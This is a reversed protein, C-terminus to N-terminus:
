LSIQGLLHATTYREVILLLKTYRGVARVCAACGNTGMCPAFLRTSEHMAYLATSEGPLSDSHSRSRTLRTALPCYTSRTVRDQLLLNGPSCVDCTHSLCTQRERNNAQRLRREEECQGKPAAKEAWLLAGIMCCARGSAVPHTRRVHRAAARPRLSRARTSLSAACALASAAPANRAAFATDISIRQMVASMCHGKVRLAHQAPRFSYNISAYCCSFAALVNKCATMDALSFLSQVAPPPSPSRPIPVAAATRSARTDYRHEQASMISFSAPLFPQSYADWYGVM